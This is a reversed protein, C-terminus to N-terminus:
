QTVKNHNGPNSISPTKRKVPHKVIVTNYNGAVSVDDAASLTVTNHNGPISASTAVGTFACENGAISLSACVGTAHITIHNGLVSINPDKNCDVNITKDNEVISVDARARASGGLVCVAIAALVPKM